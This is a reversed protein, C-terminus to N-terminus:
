DVFGLRSILVGFKRANEKDDGGTPAAGEIQLDVCILEGSTSTKDFVLRHWGGDSEIRQEGIFTGEAYARITRSALGSPLTADIFLPGDASRLLLNASERTWRAQKGPTTEAALWGRGLQGHPDDAEVLHTMSDADGAFTAGYVLLGLKRHGFIELSTAPNWTKDLKLEVPVAKEERCNVPLRLPLGWLDHSDFSFSKGRVEIQGKIFPAEPHLLANVELMPGNQGRLFLMARGRSWRFGRGQEDREADHWGWGLQGSNDPEMKIGTSLADLPTPMRWGFYQCRVCPAPPQLGAMRRRFSQYNESYWTSEFGQDFDGLDLDEWVMACAAIRRNAKLFTHRWPFPCDKVLGDSYGSAGQEPLNRGDLVIGTEDAVQGAEALYKQAEDRYNNLGLGKTHAAEMIHQVIVRDARLESAWRVFDPLEHINTKMAAFSLFFRMPHGGRASALHDLNRRLRAFDGRRRIREYTSPTAADVSICLVDLLNETVITRSLESSLRNGNSTAQVGLNQQRFWRLCDVLHPHCLIEGFGTLEVGSAARFLKRERELDAVEYIGKGDGHRQEHPLPCMLCSLDCAETLEIQIVDPFPLTEDTHHALWVPTEELYRSKKM